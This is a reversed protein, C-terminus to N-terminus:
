PIEDTGETLSELRAYEALMKAAETEDVVCIAIRTSGNQIVLSRAFLSENVRDAMRPLFGGNQLIPLKLPDINVAAAGAHLGDGAFGLSVETAFALLLLSMVLTVSKM